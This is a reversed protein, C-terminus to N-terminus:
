EWGEHGCICIQTSMSHLCPTSTRCLYDDLLIHLIDTQTQKKFCYLVSCKVTTKNNHNLNINGHTWDWVLFFPIEHQMLITTIYSVKESILLRLTDNFQLILTVRLISKIFIIHNVKLPSTSWFKSSNKWNHFTSLLHPLWGVWSNALRLTLIAVNFVMSKIIVNKQSSQYHFFALCFAIFPINPHTGMLFAPFPSLSPDRGASILCYPKQIMASLASM